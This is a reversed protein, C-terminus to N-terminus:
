GGRVLRENKPNVRIPRKTTRTRVGEKEHARRSKRNGGTAPAPIGKKNDVGNCKDTGKHPPRKKKKEEDDVSPVNKLVPTIEEIFPPGHHGGPGDPNPDFPVGQPPYGGPYGPGVPVLVVPPQPQGPHYVPPGGGVGGPPYQHVVVPPQGPAGPYPQGYGPQHHYTVLTPRQVIVNALICNAVALLALITKTTSARTM